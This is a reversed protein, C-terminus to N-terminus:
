CWVLGTLDMLERERKIDALADIQYSDDAPGCAGTFPALFDWDMSPSAWASVEPIDIRDVTKTPTCAVLDVFIESDFIMISSDAETGQARVPTASPTHVLGALTDLFESVLTLPTTPDSTNCTTDIHLEPMATDAPGITASLSNQGQDCRISAITPGQSTILDGYCNEFSYQERSDDKAHESKCPQLSGEHYTLPRRHRARPHRTSLPESPMSLAQEQAHGFSCSTADYGSFWISGSIDFAPMSYRNSLCATDM